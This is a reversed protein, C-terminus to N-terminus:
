VEGKLSIYGLLEELVEELSKSTTDIFIADKARELRGWPRSRDEEDRKHIEKKVEELKVSPYKEKLEEFRRRAREELSASLYFKYEADPLVVSGIDRGDVVVPYEKAIERIKENVKERILPNDAILKIRRSIQPSRLAEEEIPSSNVFIKQKGKIFRVEIKKKNLFEQFEKSSPVEEWPFSSNEYFELALLTYARYLAGSDIHYIGLKKALLKSITSKGSGAPGDIAIRLRNM